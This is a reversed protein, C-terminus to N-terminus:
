LKEDTPTVEITWNITADNSRLEIVQAPQLVGYSPSVLGAVVSWRGSTATLRLGVCGQPHEAQWRGREGEPNGGAMAPLVPWHTRAGAKGAPYALSATEEQSPGSPTGASLELGGAFQVVQVGPALHFRLTKEGAATCMEQGDLRGKALSIERQYVIGQGSLRAAFRSDDWALLEAKFRPIFRFLSRRGPPAGNQEGGEWTLLNHMAASRFQNRRGPLPTYLYAGPDIIFDQGDCALEFSLNDSHAHGGIRAGAPCECRIALYFHESRYLYLGSDPFARCGLDPQVASPISESPITLGRALNAVLGTEFWEGEPALSALDSRRLLGNAAAVLHRHDLQDVHGAGDLVPQLCLFRGDDNDGFRPVHGDPKTISATFAALRAVRQCYEASFVQRSGPQAPGSLVALKEPPLGLVLATTYIVLEGSLRHYCTSSEFNGGDPHFQRCVQIELERVGLALWASTEASSPLYAGAFILGALEALYHNNQLDPHDSGCPTNARIHRGHEYISRTFVAEFAPDFSAGVAAHLAPPMYASRLLDYAALWNVTRLAVDMASAWNVGFRPPNCAIFDLVQCRFERAYREPAGAGPEGGAAEASAEASALAYAWALMPLSQGRGLEWPLIVDAGPRDGYRIDGYWTRESWRYGSKFDLQWDIPQYEPDVLRWIHQAEDLNAPNVRGSLWNGQTDPQAAATGVLPATRPPFRIGELGPCAMGHRVIVPGSGLLDFRHSLVDEALPLIVGAQSRLAALPPPSFFAALRGIPAASAYSPYRADRWRQSTAQRLVRVKRRLRPLFDDLMM